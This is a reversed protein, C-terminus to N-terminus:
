RLPGRQKFHRTRVLLHTKGPCNAPDRGLSGTRLTPYLRGQQQRERARETGFRAMGLRVNYDEALRNYEQPGEQTQLASDTHEEFGARSGRDLQKRGPDESIPESM